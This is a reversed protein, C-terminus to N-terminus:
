TILLIMNIYDNPVELNLALWKLNLILMTGVILKLGNVTWM